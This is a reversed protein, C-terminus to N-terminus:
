ANGHNGYSRQGNYITESTVCVAWLKMMVLKWFLWRAESKGLGEAKGRCVLGTTWNAM